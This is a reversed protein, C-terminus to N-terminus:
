GFGLPERREQGRRLVMHNEKKEKLVAHDETGERDFGHPGRVEGGFRLPGRDRHSSSRPKFELVLRGRCGWKRSRRCDTVGALM